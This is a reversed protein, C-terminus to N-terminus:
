EFVVRFYGTRENRSCSEKDESSLLPEVCFFTVVNRFLQQSPHLNDVLVLCVILYLCM